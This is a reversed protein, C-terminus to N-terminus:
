VLPLLFFCHRPPISSLFTHTHSGSNGCLASRPHRSLLSSSTPHSTPCLSPPCCHLPHLMQIHKKNPMAIPAKQDIFGCHSRTNACLRHGCHPIPYQPLCWSYKPIFCLQLPPPPHQTGQQWRPAPPVEPPYPLHGYRGAEGEGSIGEGSIGM